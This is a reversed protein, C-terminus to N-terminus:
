KVSVGSYFTHLIEIYSKGQKAMENAGNQSMGIGHGYGGGSIHYAGNVKEIEFFASPLLSGCMGESGDNKYIVCGTGGLAQRIKHETSVLITAETGVAKLEQVIDGDGRKVIEVSLLKGIEKKAYLEMQNELTQEPITINWRYWPLEKEYDEGDGDRLAVSKLYSNDDTIESGWARISTGNGCSTSYYYATAVKGRHWIMQGSTENVARITSEREMSNGYVQFATSDDVHAKYEPYSYNRSQNYAYSRACVAQAKLAELEYSAPMESPVVAYLYEEVPLENVLVIGEATTFLEIEGRYMPAGYGRQLSLVEIKDKEDVCQLHICGNQFRKDDPMITISEEPKYTVEQEGYLICLGSAARVQVSPHTTELFGNTKILIRINGLRQISPLQSEKKIQKVNGSDRSEEYLLLATLLATLTVVFIFIAKKKM